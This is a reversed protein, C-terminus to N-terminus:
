HGSSAPANKQRKQIVMAELDEREHMEAEIDTILESLYPTDKQLTLTHQGSSLPYEYM